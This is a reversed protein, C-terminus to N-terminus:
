DLPLEDTESLSAAALAAALNDYRAIHTLRGDRVEFVVGVIGNGTVTGTEPDRWQAAAEVVVTSGHQFFRTPYMRLNARGFWERVVQAGQTQGRPGVITVDQDVLGVLRDVNCANLALHWDRVIQIEPNM